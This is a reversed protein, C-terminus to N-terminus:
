ALSLLTFRPPPDSPRVLISCPAFIAFQLPALYTFPPLLLTADPQAEDMQGNASFNDNSSDDGSEDSPLAQSSQSEEPSSPVHSSPLLHSALLFRTLVRPDRGIDDHATWVVLATGCLLGWLLLAPLHGIPRQWSTLM